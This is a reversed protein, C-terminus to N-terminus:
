GVERMTAHPLDVGLEAAIRYCDSITGWLLAPEVGSRLARDLLGALKWDPDASLALDLAVGAYAGEGAIYHAHALLTAASARGRGRLRRTLMRWLSQAGERLDTVACALLADRVPITLIAREFREMQACEAIAPPAHMVDLLENFLAAQETRDPVGLGHDICQADSGSPNIGSRDDAPGGGAMACEASSCHPLSTLMEAIETRRTLLRRGTAFATALATPCSRPDSLGGGSELVPCATTPGTAGPQWVLQWPAHQEFETVVFGQAVGGSDSCREDAIEMVRRYRPDGPRFRNDVIAAVVDPNDTAGGRGQRGIIRGLRALVVLLDDDPTGTPKLSLDYRMVCQVTGREHLSLLVLSAHPIFGLLAPIATLLTTADIPGAPYLTPGHARTM